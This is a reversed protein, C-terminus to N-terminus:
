DTKTPTPLAGTMEMLAARSGGDSTVKRIFDSMPLDHRKAFSGGSSLVYAGIMIRASKLATQQRYKSGNVREEEIKRRYEERLKPDEIQDPSMGAAANPVGAPPSINASGAAYIFQDDILSDIKDFVAKISAIIRKSEESDLAFDSKGLSELIWSASDQMMEINKMVGDGPAFPEKVVLALLSDAIKPTDVYNDSQREHIFKKLDSLDRFQTGETQSFGSEALISSYLVVLINSLKM